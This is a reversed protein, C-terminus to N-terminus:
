KPLNKFYDKDTLARATCGFGNRKDNSTVSCFISAIGYRSGKIGMPILKGTKNEIQFMFLDHGFRNPKKHLGNIDVSICIPNGGDNDILIFMGDTLITQGEDFNANYGKNGNYTKYDKSLLLGVDNDTGNSQCGHTGCDKGQILYKKLAPALQHAGYNEQNVIYGQDTNLRTIAQSLISYAKNLQASYQVSATNNILAPLTMAAVVGIIGLTILVEALTFASHRTLGLANFLGGASHSGGGGEIYHLSIM